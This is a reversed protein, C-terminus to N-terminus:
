GASAPPLSAYLVLPWGGPSTVVARSEHAGTTIDSVEVGGDRLRDRVAPLDEVKVMPGPRDSVRDTGALSLRVGGHDFQAWRDGDVFTPGTGLLASWFGVAAELDPVPLIFSLRQATMGAM